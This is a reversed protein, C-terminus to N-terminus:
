GGLFFALVTGHWPTTYRIDPGGLVVRRADPAVGIAYIALLERTKPMPATWFPDPGGYSPSGVVRAADGLVLTSGSLTVPWAEAHVTSLPPPPIMQVDQPWFIHVESEDCAEPCALYASADIADDPIGITSSPLGVRSSDVPGVPSFAIYALSGIYVVALGLSLALYRRVGVAMPPRDSGRLACGAFVIPTLLGCAASVPDLPLPVAVIVFVLVAVGVIAVWRRIAALPYTSKAATRVPVQLGLYAVIVLAAIGLARGMWLDLMSYKAQAVPGTLADPLPAGPGMWLWVPISVLILTLSMLTWAGWIFVVIRFTSAVTAWLAARVAPWLGPQPPKIPPRATWGSM